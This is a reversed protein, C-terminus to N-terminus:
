SDASNNYLFRIKRVETTNKLHGDVIAQMEVRAKESKVKEEEEEEEAKAKAKREKEEEAAKRNREAEEELAKDNKAAEKQLAKDYQQRAAESKLFRYPGLNFIFRIM